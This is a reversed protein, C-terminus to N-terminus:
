REGGQGGHQSNETELGGGEVKLRANDLHVEDVGEGFDLRPDQHGHGEVTEHSNAVRQAVGRDQGAGQYHLCSCRDEHPADTHHERNSDEDLLHRKAPGTDQRVGEAQVLVQQPQNTPIDPDVAHVPQGHHHEGFAQVGQSDEQRVRHDDPGDQADDGLFCSGFGKARADGVEAGDQDEVDWEKAQRDHVPKPLVQGGESVCEHGIGIEQHWRDQVGEHVAPFGLLDAPPDEDEETLSPALLM